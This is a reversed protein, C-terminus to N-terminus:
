GESTSENTGGPANLDIVDDDFLGREVENGFVVWDRVAQRGFLELYPPPSVREILSRVQEPKASHKGRDICLWNSISKDRFHCRGRVGLLMYETASRWYYGLGPRPKLWVFLGKYDFGWATMVKEAEFLFSHPFWLHLHAEPAALERVPLAIIEQLSMTRYHNEAAARPKRKYRWPPDAYITGFKVGKEVLTPLDDLVYGAASGLILRPLKM